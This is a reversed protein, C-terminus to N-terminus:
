GLRTTPPHSRLKAEYAPRYGPNCALYDDLQRKTWGHVPEYGPVPRYAPYMGARAPPLRGAWAHGAAAAFVAAIVAVVAVTPVWFPALVWWWSWDLVGCFKLVVFAVGLAGSVGMGGATDAQYAM